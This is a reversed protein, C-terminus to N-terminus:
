SGESCSGTVNSCRIVQRIKIIMKWSIISLWYGICSHLCTLLRTQKKPRSRIVHVIKGPPYLEQGDNARVSPWNNASSSSLAESAAKSLLQKLM